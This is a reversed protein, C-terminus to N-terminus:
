RAAEIAAAHRRLVFMALLAAPVLFSFGIALAPQIGLAEQLWGFGIYIVGAVGWTFGMLLGSAAAVANPALDQASLVLLPISLNTLLGALMVAGYYPLGAPELLLTAGLCPLALLMSGVVLPVRGVRQETFGALISGAASSISYLSLTLGIAQADPAFGRTLSLYLPMGNTFSIFAMARLIGAGALVGVPGALLSLDFPKLRQGPVVTTTQQRPILVLMAIGIAVGVLSILPVYQTGFSRVVALIAVPMVATGFSGGAAFLSMSVSKRAGTSRAMAAAGPHFVASGLGGVALIFFLSWVSPAVSVFGMLTSGVILALSATKRRGWRDVFGGFFPQLVNSSLSIVAVMVAMVAEGLGFRAQITPLFVPLVNTFADNTAHAFAILLTLQMGTLSRSRVESASM